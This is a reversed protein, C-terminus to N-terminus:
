PQRTRPHELGIYKDCKKELIDQFPKIGCGIDLTLGQVHIAAKTVSLISYHSMLWNHHQANRNRKFSM